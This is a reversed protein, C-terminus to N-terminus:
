VDFLSDYFSHKGPFLMGKWLGRSSSKLSGAEVLHGLASRLDDRDWSALSGFKRIRWYARSFLTLKRSCSLIDAWEKVSFRSPLSGVAAIIEQEGWAHKFLARSCVDCGSCTDHPVGLLSIMGRRRCTNDDAIVRYLDIFRSESADAHIFKQKDEMGILLIALSPNRDRGARGSEQLYSEVTQPLSQHIVTRINKKDVGMGYATTSCLIGKDSSFFWEEIEKKVEKSLGAHYYRIDPDQHRHSLLRALRETENRTSCFIILPRQVPSDPATLVTLDHDKAISPLVRYRINPRDPNAKIINLEEPRIEPFIIETVRQIIKPSATATFATVQPVKLKRQIDTLELYSPRFTDGWESVTHTEDIVMHALPLEQIRNLIKEQKLTEPNTLIFRTERNKLRNWLREREQRSQGGRLIAPEEGIEQVRRGQDEILALLPFIILTIGEILLAPLMFCLSKGSGTPLIVIQESPASYEEPVEDFCSSDCTEDIQPPSLISASITNQENPNRRQARKKIAQNAELINTIVLQQYPFLTPIGFRERATEAILLQTTLTSDQFKIESSHDSSHDSNHDSNHDSSHNLDM